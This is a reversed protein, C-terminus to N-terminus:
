HDAYRLGYHFMGEDISIRSRSHSRSLDGGGRMRGRLVREYAPDHYYHEEETADHPAYSYDRRPRSSTRVQRYPERENVRSSSSVHKVRRSPPPEEYYVRREAVYPAGRVEPDSYQGPLLRRAPTAPRSVVRSRNLKIDLSHPGVRSDLVYRSPYSVYRVDIEDDDDSLEPEHRHDEVYVIKKKRSKPRSQAAPGDVYRVIEVNPSRARQSRSKHRRPRIEVSLDSDSSSAEPERSAYYDFDFARKPRSSSRARSRPRSARGRSRRRRHSHSRYDREEYSDTSEDESDTAAQRCSRCITPGPLQGVPVRHKWQYRASRFRGCISCKYKLDDPNMMMSNMAFQGPNSPGYGPPATPPANPVTTHAPNFTAGTTNSPPPRGMPQHILAQNGPLVYPYMRAHPAAYHALQSPVLATNQQNQVNSDNGVQPPAYPPFAPFPHFHQHPQSQQSQSPPQSQPTQSHAPTRSREVMEPQPQSKQKLSSKRRPISARSHPRSQPGPTPAPAAPQAPSTPASVPPGNFFPNRSRIDYIAEAFKQRLSPVAPRRKVYYARGDAGREIWTMRQM